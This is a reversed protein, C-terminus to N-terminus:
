PTGIHQEIQFHPYLEFFKVQSSVQYNRVTIDASQAHLGRIERGPVDREGVPQMTAPFRVPLSVTGVLAAVTFLHWDDVTCRRRAADFRILLHHV